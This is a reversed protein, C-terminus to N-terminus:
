YDTGRSVVEKCTPRLMITHEYQATYSGKVDCLPPYAEVAGKDCLDKLAMQYRTAGARDLWRKCFALTGFNKNITNLLSKSSQLKIPVYQLDFNKMYHSVDMDDHVVGRGTSGFTEIAYFENEEMRTSEGGKVIPVTKGAHIRYPSISHGNLNRISKVQYTKGDLEIEYSEMVEQIAAGIDCLRVDIGAERIGTNTADRVAEKLKDYKPNFTLTFACDIIRGNIHTGFDIKCVDDYELVTPDGANPTYHAACHNRSCGTPFALGAELGKEGILRRATSELEECIEIMTMGPKVWNQIYKRTQRHAEAAQRLEAYIDEHLRDLTRKEESTFRDKAMRDDTFKPHMLIEGEPFNKNPFQEAIPVTPKVNGSIPAAPAATTSETSAKAKNKNKNKKKKKKKDGTASGNEVPTNETESDDGDGNNVVETAEVKETSEVPAGADTEETSEVLFTYFEAWESIKAATPKGIGHGARTQIKIMLPNTQRNDRGIKYQLEAIMKYSHSPVARDDHDATTLLISPYQVKEDVPLRVNHLPSLRYLNDFFTRNGDDSCGYESCWAYGITFKQFRLFDYLGVQAIAAGYLEPRQNVCAAVLLGGNSLGNIAIKSPTTYGEKILYEAAAQFDDFSNQKNLIRGGDHWKSGYEGGGRINAVAFVGDFNKIFVIRNPNYSPLVNGEFGGYGYLFTSANGNRILDKKHVIFMPILTGDYSPYFKQTTVFKSADFGPVNMERIIELKYPSRNLDLRYIIGPILFSVLRFFFENHSKKGWSLDISGSPIDVKELLSGNTLSRVELESKVDVLYKLVIKNNDVNTVWELLNKPHEGVITTWNSSHPNNLDVGIIRNNPAADNTLLYIISGESGIYNFANRLEDVIPIIQLKSRIGGTKLQNELSAFYVMFNGGKTPFVILNKGDDTVKFRGIILKPDEFELLLIDDSQSTGIRHYYLKQSGLSTMADFNSYCAYFIGLGDLSWAIKSFKINRLTEPFEEGTSANLFRVTKWDLGKSNLSLAVVDGDQSFIMESLYITGDTSLANPDFFVRHEDHLSDQVYIVDQNQLGTNMATYYRSGYRSPVGYKPYNYAEMLKNEIQTKVSHQALYQDTLANQEKIFNSVEESTLDELYRYPDAVKVGYYDDVVSEDRRVEPYQFKPKEHLETMAVICLVSVFIICVRYVAAMTDKYFAGINM